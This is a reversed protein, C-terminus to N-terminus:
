LNFKLQLGAIYYIAPTNYFLPYSKLEREIRYFAGLKIAKNFSYSTGVTLRFKELGNAAQTPETVDPIYQIRYAQHTYFLEGSIYPDLKWNRINYSIKARLRYKVAPFDGDDKSLGFQQQHQFRFRYAFEFRSLKHSYNLDTYLRGMSIYGDKRNDRIFRFGGTLSLNKYFEYSAEFESFYNNIKTSNDKFRFEQTFQLDLKKELFSKQVSVGNWTEFDSVVTSDQAFLSVTCSFFAIMLLPFKM